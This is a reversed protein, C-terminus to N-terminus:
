SCLSLVFASDWNRPALKFTLLGRRIGSLTQLKFLTACTQEFQLNKKNSSLNQGNKEDTKLSLEIAETRSRDTRM